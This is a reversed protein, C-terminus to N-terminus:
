SQSPPVRSYKTPRNSIPGFSEKSFEEPYELMAVLQESTTDSSGSLSRGQRHNTRAAQHKQQETKPDSKGKFRSMGRGDDAIGPCQRRVHGAKGCLYCKQKSRRKEAAQQRQLERRQAFNLDNWKAGGGGEQSSDHGDDDSSAQHNNTNNDDIGENNDEQEHSKIRHKRGM